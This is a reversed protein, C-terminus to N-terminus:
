ARIRDMAPDYMPKLSCRAPVRAGSIEVEWRGADLWAQDTMM